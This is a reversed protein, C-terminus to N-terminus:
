ENNLHPHRLEDSEFSTKLSGSLSRIKRSSFKQAVSCMPLCEDSLEFVCFLITFDFQILIRYLSSDESSYWLSLLLMGGLPVCCNKHEPQERKTSLTILRVLSFRGHKVPLTKIHNVWSSESELCIERLVWLSTKSPANKNKTNCTPWCPLITHRQQM